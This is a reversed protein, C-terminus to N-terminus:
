KKVIVLRKKEFPPNSEETEEEVQIQAKPKVFSTNAHTNSFLAELREVRTLLSLFETKSVSETTTTSAKVYVNGYQGSNLKDALNRVQTLMHKPFIWGRGGKLRENFTGGLAQLAPGHHELTNRVVISKETYMEVVITTMKNLFLKM